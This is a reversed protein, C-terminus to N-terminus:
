TLDRRNGKIEEALAGPAVWLHFLLHRPNQALFPALAVL